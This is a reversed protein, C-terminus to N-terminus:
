CGGQDWSWQREEDVLWPVSMKSKVLCKSQYLNQKGQIYKMNSTQAIEQRCCLFYNLEPLSEAETELHNTHGTTPLNPMTVASVVVKQYKHGGADQNNLLLPYDLRDCWYEDKQQSESTHPIHLYNISSIQEVVEANHSKCYKYM